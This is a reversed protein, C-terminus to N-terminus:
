SPNQDHIPQGIKELDQLVRSLMMSLGERLLWAKTCGLTTHLLEMQRFTEEDVYTGVFTKGDRPTMPTEKGIKVYKLMIIWYLSM